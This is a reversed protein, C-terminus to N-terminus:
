EDEQEQEEWAEVQEQTASVSLVITDIVDVLEKMHAETLKERIAMLDDHLADYDLGM